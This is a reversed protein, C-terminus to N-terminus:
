DPLTDGSGGFESPMDKYKPLGDNVSISKNHYFVHLTPEHKFGPMVSSYVDVLGMPPHDSFLHGGCSKCFKRESNDTKSYSGINDEGKTVTVSGLPFLSFSNIPSAAWTGCDECHCYGMAAPEGSVEFEVAGCFCAGKQTDVM